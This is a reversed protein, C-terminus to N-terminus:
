MANAAYALFEAIHFYAEETHNVRITHVIFHHPGPKAMTRELYARTAPSPYYDHSDMEDKWESGSWTRTGTTVYNPLTGRAPKVTVTKYLAIRPEPDVLYEAIINDKTVAQGPGLAYGRSALLALAVELKRANEEAEKRPRDAIEGFNPEAAREISAVMKELAARADDLKWDKQFVQWVASVRRSPDRFSMRWVPEDLGNVVYRGSSIDWQADTHVQKAGDAGGNMDGEVEAIAAAYSSASAEPAHLNVYLYARYPTSSGIAWAHYRPLKWGVWTSTEFRPTESPAELRAKRPITITAASGLKRRVSGFQPFFAMLALAAVVVIVVRVFWHM